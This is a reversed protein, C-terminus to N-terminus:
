DFEFRWTGVVFFLATFGLLVAIELIVDALGRGRVM